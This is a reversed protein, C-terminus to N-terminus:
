VNVVEQLEAEKKILAQKRKYDRQYDLGKESDTYRKQTERVKDYHNEKYKLNSRKKIEAKHKKIDEESMEHFKSRYRRKVKVLQETQEVIEEVVEEVVELVKMNEILNDIKIHSTM